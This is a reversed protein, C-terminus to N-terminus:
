RMLNLIFFTLDLFRIDKQPGSVYTQFSDLGVEIMDPLETGSLIASRVRQKLATDSIVQIHVSADFDKCFKRVGEKYAEEHNNAATIFHIDSKPISKESFLLIVIILTSVCSIILM